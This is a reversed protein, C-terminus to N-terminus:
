MEEPCTSLTGVNPFSDRVVDAVESPMKDLWDPDKHSWNYPCNLNHAGSAIADHIVEINPSVLKGGEVLAQQLRHCVALAKAPEYKKSECTIMAAHTPTESYFDDPRTFDIDAYAPDNINFYFEPFHQHQTCRPFHLFL